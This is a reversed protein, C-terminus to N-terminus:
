GAEDVICYDFEKGALAAQQAGLCTSAIVPCTEYARKLEPLDSVPQADASRLLFFSFSFPIKLCLSGLFIIFFPVEFFKSLFHHIYRFRAQM